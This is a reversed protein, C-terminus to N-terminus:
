PEPKKDGFCCLSFSHGLGVAKSPQDLSKTASISTKYLQLYYFYVSFMLEEIFYRNLIGSFVGSFV